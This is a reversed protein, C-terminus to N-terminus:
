RTCAPAPAAPWSSAACAPYRLAVHRNEQHGTAGSEDTGVEDVVQDVVGVRGDGHEVLEGVGAVASGEVSQRGIAEPEDVTVDAVGAQDVNAAVVREGYGGGPARRALKSRRQLIEDIAWAGQPGGGARADAELVVRDGVALKLVREAAAVTDRRLSGDARRGENSKKLRGRLSAERVAGDDGLVRWVGGTGSLVTGTLPGENM